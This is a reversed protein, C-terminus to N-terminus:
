APRPTERSPPAPDGVPSCPGPLHLRFGTAVAELRGGLAVALRQGLALDQALLGDQPASGAGLCDLTTGAADQTVRLTWADAVPSRALGAMLVALLGAVREADTEIPQLDAPLELELVSGAGHLLPAVTREVRRCLPALAVPSCRLDEPRLRQADAIRGLRVLLYRAQALLQSADERLDLDETGFAHDEILEARLLLRNAVRLVDEM